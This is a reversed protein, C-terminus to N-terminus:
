LGDVILVRDDPASDVAPKDRLERLLKVYDKM